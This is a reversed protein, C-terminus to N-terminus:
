EDSMDRSETVDQAADPGAPGWQGRRLTALLARKLGTLARRDFEGGTRLIAQVTVGDMAAKILSAAALPDQDGRFEGSAIGGDVIRKLRGVGRDHLGHFSRSAESDDGERAATVMFELVARGIRRYRELRHFWYDLMSLLKDVASVREALMADLDAEDEALGETFVCAFLDQKSEFYNYISGKSIGARAAVEEVTTAAYGGADFTEAAAALIAGRRRAMENGGAM